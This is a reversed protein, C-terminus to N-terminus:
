VQNLNTMDLPSLIQAKLTTPKTQHLYNLYFPNHDETCRYSLLSLTGAEIRGVSRLGLKHLIIKSLGIVGHM